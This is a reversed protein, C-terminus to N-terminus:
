TYRMPYIGRDMLYTDRDMLYTGRDMLYTGRNMLYIGRYVENRCMMAACGGHVYAEIYM